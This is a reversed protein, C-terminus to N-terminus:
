KAAASMATHDGGHNEACAPCLGFIEVTQRLAFFGHQSAKKKLLTAVGPDAMEAVAHCDQCVLFQGAHAHEPDGCGVFANLSEIRHILGNAILFDLARYITPPAAARHVKKLKDLLDYARMPMHAQWVLELVQRRQETLRQGRRRCVDEATKLADEVCRRHNHKAPLFGSAPDM